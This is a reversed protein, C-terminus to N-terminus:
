DIHPFINITTVYNSYFRSFCFFSTSNIKKSFPLFNKCDEFYAMLIRSFITMFLFFIKNNVIFTKVMKSRFHASKTLIFVKQLYFWYKCYNFTHIQMVDFNILPYQDCLRKCLFSTRVSLYM